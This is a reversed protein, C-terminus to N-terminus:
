NDMNTVRAKQTVFQELQFLSADFLTIYLPFANTM